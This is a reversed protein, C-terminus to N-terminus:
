SAASWGGEPSLCGSGSTPLQLGLSVNDVLSCAPKTALVEQSEPRDVAAQSPAGSFVCFVLRCPLPLCYTAAVASVLCRTVQAAQEQSPCLLCAWGLRRRQPTGSFRFRLPKSRPLAYLGPGVESLERCLLSSGSCYLSPFCVRRSRPCVWHPRTLALM